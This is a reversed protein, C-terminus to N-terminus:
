EHRLEGYNKSSAERPRNGQALHNEQRALPFCPCIQGGDEILLTRHSVPRHLILAGASKLTSRTELPHSSM